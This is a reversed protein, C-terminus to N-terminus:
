KTSDKAIRKAQKEPTEQELNAITKLQMLQIEIHKIYQNRALLNTGLDDDLSPIYDLNIKEGDPNTLLELATKTMGLAKEKYLMAQKITDKHQGFIMSTASLWDDQMTGIVSQRSLQPLLREQMIKLMRKNAFTTKVARKDEGTVEKNLLVARISVLLEDNGKFVSQIVEVDKKLIADISNEEKIDM